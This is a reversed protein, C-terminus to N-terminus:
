WFEAGAKLGIDTTGEVKRNVYATSISSNLIIIEPSRELNQLLQQPYNQFAMNKIVNIGFEQRIDKNHKRDAM